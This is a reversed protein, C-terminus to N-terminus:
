ASSRTFVHDPMNVVEENTSWRIIKEGGMRMMLASSVRSGRSNELSDFDHVGDMNLRSNGTVAAFCFVVKEGPVMDETSLVGTPNKIGLAQLQEAVNSPIVLRDEEHELMEKTLFRGQIEGGLIKMAAAALFGEPGGGIGMAAAVNTGKLACVIAATLDGHHLLEVKAGTERIEQILRNNRPRDLVMVSLTNINRGLNRAIARLNERPPAGLDVVGRGAPGVVLKDMYLDPAQIIGGRETFAAVCIANPAGDACLQTGELPDVAIDVEPYPFGEYDSHWGLGVKEGRPLMSAEDCEDLEGEGVCISGRMRIKNLRTRMAQTSAKDAPIKDGRGAHDASATAAIEVVRQFDSALEEFPFTLDVM